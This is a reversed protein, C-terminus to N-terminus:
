RIQGTDRFAKLRHQGHVIQIVANMRWRRGHGILEPLHSYEILVGPHSVEFLRDESPFLVHFYGMYM